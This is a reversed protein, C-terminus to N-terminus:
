HAARNAFIAKLQKPNWGTLQKCTRTFHSQDAFGCHYALDTLQINKSGLLELAKEMKIKRRYEGLTCGFYRPFYGSLNAPHLDAIGALESLTLKENWLDYLAENIKSTWGPASHNSGVKNTFKFFPLVASEIGLPTDQDNITLERYVKLMMFRANVSHSKELKAAHVILDNKAMFQDTMELNIQSSGPLIDVGQHVEGPDYFTVTAPLCDIARKQRKELNGGQLIFSLHFTEHFHRSETYRIRPYSTVSAIIGSAETFHRIQGLFNGKKLAIM